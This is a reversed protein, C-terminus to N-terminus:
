ARMEVCFILLICRAAEYNCRKRRGVGVGEGSEETGLRGSPLKRGTRCSSSILLHRIQPTIIRVLCRCSTILKCTDGALFSALPSPVLSPHRHHHPTIFSYIEGLSFASRSVGNRGVVLEGRGSDGTGLPGGDRVPRVSLWSGPKNQGQGPAGGGGSEEMGVEACERGLFNLGKAPAGPLKILYCEGKGAM